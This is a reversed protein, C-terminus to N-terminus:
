DLVPPGLPSPECDDVLVSYVVGAILWGDDRRILSFSNTGCHHFEGNLWFDYPTWVTALRDAELVQVDWIRELLRDTRSSMSELYQSATMQNLLVVGDQVRYGYLVADDYMVSDALTWDNSAMAEFFTEVAATPTEGGDALAPLATLCILCACFPRM